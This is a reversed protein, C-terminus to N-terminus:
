NGSKYKKTFEIKKCNDFINKNIKLVNTKGEVKQIVPDFLSIDDAFMESLAEINKNEFNIFYKNTLEYILDKM